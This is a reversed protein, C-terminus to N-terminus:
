TIDYSITTMNRHCKGNKWISFDVGIKKQFRKEIGYQEIGLEWAGRAEDNMAEADGCESCIFTKVDRRSFVAQEKSPKECRPCIFHPM